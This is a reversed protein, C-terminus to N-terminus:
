ERKIFLIYNDKSKKTNIIKHGEEKIAASVNKIPEGADIIIELISSAEMGELKLLAIASNQPCATGRLDLKECSKM